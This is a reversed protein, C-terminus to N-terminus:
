RELARLPANCVKEYAKLEKKTMAVPEVGINRSLAMLKQVIDDIENKRRDAAEADCCEELYEVENLAANLVAKQAELTFGNLDRMIKKALHPIEFSALVVAEKEKRAM